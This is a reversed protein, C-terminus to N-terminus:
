IKEVDFGTIAHWVIKGNEKTFFTKEFGASSIKLGQRAFEKNLSNVFRSQMLADSVLKEIQARNEFNWKNIGFPPPSKQFEPQKELYTVVDEQIDARTSLTSLSIGFIRPNKDKSYIDNLVQAMTEPKTPEVAPYIPWADFPKAFDYHHFETTWLAEDAFAPLALLASLAFITRVKKM